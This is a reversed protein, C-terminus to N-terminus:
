NEVKKLDTHGLSGEQVHQVDRREGVTQNHALDVVRAGDEGGGHQVDGVLVELGLKDTSHTVDGGNAQLDVEGRGGGSGMGDGVAELVAHGKGGDGVDGERGGLAELLVQGVGALKGHSGCGSGGGGATSSRSSGGGLLFGLLLVVVHSETEEILGIM